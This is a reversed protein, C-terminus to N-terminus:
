LIILNRLIKLLKLLRKLVDRVLYFSREFHKNVQCSDEGFQGFRALRRVKILSISQDLFIRKHRYVFTHQMISILIPFSYPFSFFVRIFIVRLSITYFHALLFAVCPLFPQLPLFTSSYPAFSFSISLQTHSENLCVYLLWFFFLRMYINVQLTALSSLTLKRLSVADDVIAAFSIFVVAFKYNNYLSYQM